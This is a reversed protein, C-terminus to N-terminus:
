AGSRLLMVCHHRAGPSYLAFRNSLLTTELAFADMPQSPPVMKTVVASPQMRSSEVTGAVAAYLPLSM